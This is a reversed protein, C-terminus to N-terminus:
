LLVTRQAYSASGRNWANLKDSDGGPTRLLSGAACCWWLAGMGYVRALVTFGLGRWEAIFARWACSGRIAGVKINGIQAIRVPMLQCANTPM